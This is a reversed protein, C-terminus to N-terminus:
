LISCFTERLFAKWRAKERVIQQETRCSGQFSQPSLFRLMKIMVIPHYFINIDRDFRKPFWLKRDYFHRLLQFTIVVKWTADLRGEFAWLLSSCWCFHRLLNWIFWLVNKAMLVDFYLYTDSLIDWLNWIYWLVNTILLVEDQCLPM